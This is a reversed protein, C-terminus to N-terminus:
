IDGGWIAELGDGADAEPKAAELIAADVNRWRGSGMTGGASNRAFYTPIKEEYYLITNYILNTIGLVIPTCLSTIISTGRIM